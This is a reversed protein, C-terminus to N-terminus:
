AEKEEHARQVNRARFAADIDAKAVRVWGAGTNLNFALKNAFTGPEPGGLDRLTAIAGNLAAEAQAIEERVQRVQAESLQAALTGDMPVMLEGSM